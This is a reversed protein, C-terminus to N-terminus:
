HITPHITPVVWGILSGLTAGAIEDTPFHKGAVVRLASVAVAGAYLLVTNRQRHALHERGSLVFYSTAAAFAMAAHGGPMSLRNDKVAAAAVADSTYLVPRNRHVLAKLWTASAEAWTWCIM